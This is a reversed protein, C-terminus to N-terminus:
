RRLLLMGGLLGFLALVGVARGPNRRVFQAVALRQTDAQAARAQSERAVTHAGPSARMPAEGVAALYPAQM